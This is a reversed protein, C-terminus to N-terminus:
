RPRPTAWAACSPRSFPVPRPRLAYLPHVLASLRHRHSPCLAGRGALGSHLPGAAPLLLLAAMGCVVTALIGQRIIRRARADDEAGIANSVQVSYGVGIGALIGNILWISSANVSVSATAAAGLVGVMATDVYSVMTALVQEIIAPWSLHWMVKMRPNSGFRSLAM